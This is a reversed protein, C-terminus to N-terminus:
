PQHNKNDSRFFSINVLLIGIFLGVAAILLFRNIHIFSGGLGKVFMLIENFFFAIIFIGGGWKILINFQGALYDRIFLLLLFPTVIGLFILHLYALVWERRLAIEYAISPIASLSQLMIKLAFAIFVGYTIWKFLKSRFAIKNSVNRILQILDIFAILQLLMAVIGCIYVVFPPEVWLTSLSFAVLTSITFLILVRNARKESYRIGRKELYAFCLALIAFLFWGNYLFHLYFYIMNFYLDSGGMGIANLPGLSWPGISSIVFFIVSYRAFRVAISIKRHNSTDKLFRFAFAYSVLIYFSSFAITTISYGQFPFFIIMGFISFQFAYFIRRYSISRKPSSEVFANVLLM